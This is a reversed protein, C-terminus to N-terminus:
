VKQAKILYYYKHRWALKEFFSLNKMLEKKIEHLIEIELVKFSIENLVLELKRPHTGGFFPLFNKIEEYIKNLEKNKRFYINKYFYNLIKEFISIQQWKSDLIILIGGPKLLNYWAQLAKKPQPLTWILHRCIILDFSESKFPPNEADGLIFNIKLNKNKAKLYAKKLMNLSLDLAIVDYGIDGLLLALFGTGTGVDLIKLKKENKLHKTLINKWIEKLGSHSLSNDYTQSREDWYMRIKEKVNM